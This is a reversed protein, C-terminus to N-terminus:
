QKCEKILNDFRDMMSKRFKSAEGPLIMRIEPELFLIMKKISDEKANRVLGVHKKIKGIAILHAMTRFALKADYMYERHSVIKKVESLLQEPKM